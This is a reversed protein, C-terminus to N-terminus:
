MDVEAKRFTLYQVKNTIRQRQGQRQRLYWFLEWRPVTQCSCSGQLRCLRWRQLQQQDQLGEFLEPSHRFVVKLRKRQRYLPKGHLFHGKRTVVAVAISQWYSCAVVLVHTFIELALYGSTNQLKILKQIFPQQLTRKYPSQLNLCCLLKEPLGRPLPLSTLLLVRYVCASTLICVM